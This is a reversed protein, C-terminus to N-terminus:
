RLGAHPKQGSSPTNFDDEWSLIRYPQNPDDLVLIVVESGVLRGNDFNIQVTVRTARSGEVTAATRGEGLLALVKDGNIPRVDRQKLAADLRESTMGPLAAVVQPAADLVNIEPRGSFITVYPMAREVLSAPLGLVRWLEDVHVFPAGRPRYDLGATRYASAEQDLDNTQAAPKTRWGVIRDAYIGADLYRAGITAFLGALLGKSAMNLDVRAAESRYSVMVAARGTRLSFAGRTPRNEKNRTIHYTTVELAASVSAEAQLRDDDVAQDTVTSVIYAAYISCLAALAGLIWLAAVIIFGDHAGNRPHETQSVRM